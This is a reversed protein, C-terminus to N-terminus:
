CAQRYRDQVATRLAPLPASLASLIVPVLGESVALVGLALHEVRARPAYRARAEQCAIELSQVAGPGHPLFVGDRQAGSRRRVNGPMRSGAGRGRGAAQAAQSVAALGFRTEVSARVADVDIGIVALADRDLDEFLKAGSLRIIEAEVREPTVGHERLVAGAPQDSSALALLFHEGGLYDHGLRVALEFALMPIARAEETLRETMM